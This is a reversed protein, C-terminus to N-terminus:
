IGRNARWLLIGGGIQFLFNPIWVILHPLFEPRSELAGGLILFSYYVIVLILAFAVGMSTEKRHARIGLPIGILTFAVCAFSFSVMRNLQVKAAMAFDPSKTKKFQERLEPPLKEPSSQQLNLQELERIKSRLQWFTMDSLKTTHVTASAGKLDFPLYFDGSIVRNWEGKDQGAGRSELLHLTIQGNQVDSIFRGRPARIWQILTGSEDVQSVEVDLLEEGNRRDVYIGYGGRFGTVYQKERLLTSPNETGVRYLLEKYASRCLPALQLNILASVGTLMFSLILIPTILALLSIGSARVATLEHDASFRGFTLLTATLLGIPLAFVLVYPILLGIAQAVTWLSAQGNMLLTVIEKLINGLLLVFTFVLVTMVLTGLIQRTVYLHLTKM